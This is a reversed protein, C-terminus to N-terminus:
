FSVQRNSSGVDQQWGFIQNWNSRWGQPMNYQYNNNNSLGGQREQNSM